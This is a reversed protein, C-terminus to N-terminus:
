PVDFFGVPTFFVQICFERANRALNRGAESSPTDEAAVLVSFEPPHIPITLVSIPLV